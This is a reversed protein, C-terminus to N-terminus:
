VPFEIALLEEVTTCSNIHDTYIKETEFCTQVHKTIVKSVELAQEKDLSVFSGNSIKWNLTGIVGANFNNVITAINFQAERSTSYHVGNIVVGSTELQYRWAALEGLKIRRSHEFTNELPPAKSITNLVGSTGVPIDQFVTSRPIWVNYPVYRSVVEELTEDTTPMAGGVVIPEHGPASFMIDMVGLEKNSNIITYEYNIDM